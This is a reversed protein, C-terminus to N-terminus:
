LLTISKQITSKKKGKQKKEKNQKYSLTFFFYNIKLSIQSCWTYNKERTM